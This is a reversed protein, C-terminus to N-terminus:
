MTCLVRFRAIKQCCSTWYAADAMQFVDMCVIKPKLPFNARWLDLANLGHLFIFWKKAVAILWEDRVFGSLWCNPCFL